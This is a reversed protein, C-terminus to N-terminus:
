NDSPIKTASLQAEHTVIRELDEPGTWQQWEESGLIWAERREAVLKSYLYGMKLVPFQYIPRIDWATQSEKSGKIYLQAIPPQTMYMRRWSAHLSLVEPPLDPSPSWVGNQSLVPFLEVLLPNAFVKYVGIDQRNGGWHAKYRSPPANSPCRLPQLHLPNGTQRWWDNYYGRDDFEWDIYSVPGYQSPVLFLARRIQVSDRSLARWRRCVRQSLLLDRMPLHLLIQELLEVINFVSSCEPQTQECRGVAQEGKLQHAEDDDDNKGAPM